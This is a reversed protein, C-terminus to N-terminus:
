GRTRAPNTVRGRAMTESRGWLTQSSDGGRGARTSSVASSAYAVGFIRTARVSRKLEFMIPGLQLMRLLRRRGSNFVACHSPRSDGPGEEVLSKEGEQGVM